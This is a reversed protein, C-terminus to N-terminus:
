QTNRQGITSQRNREPAHMEQHVLSAEQYESVALSADKEIAVFQRGDIISNRSPPWSFYQMTILDALIEPNSKVFRLAHKRYARSDLYASALFLSHDM